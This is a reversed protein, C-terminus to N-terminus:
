GARAATAPGHPYGRTRGIGGRFVSVSFDAALTEGAELQVTRAAPAYGLRDLRVEVEGVPVGSLSYRGDDDTFTQLATGPVFVRADSVPRLSAVDTVTGTVSGTQQAELSSLPLCLLALGTFLCGWRFSGRASLSFAM